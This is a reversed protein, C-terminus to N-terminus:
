LDCELKSVLRGWTSAVLALILRSKAIKIHNCSKIEVKFLFYAVASYLFVMYRFSLITTVHAYCARLSIENSAKVFPLDKNIFGFHLQTHCFASM